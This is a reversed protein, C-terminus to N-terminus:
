PRDVPSPQPWARGDGEHHGRSQLINASDKALNPLRLFALYDSVIQREHAQRWTRAAQAADQGGVASGVLAV